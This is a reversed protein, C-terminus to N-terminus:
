GKPQPDRGECERLPFPLVDFLLFNPLYRPIQAIKGYHRMDLWVHGWEFWLSYRKNYLLENLLGPNGSDAIPALGGSNTRIFNIDALATARNGLGLNAEARLLVLEEN